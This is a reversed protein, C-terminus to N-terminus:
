IVSQEALGFYPLVLSAYAVVTPSATLPSQSAAQFMGVTRGITANGMTARWYAATTADSSSFALYYLGPDFTWSITVTQMASVGAQATAATAQVQTGTAGSITYVGLQANGAVAAGNLWWARVYTRRQTLRFPVFLGLGATGYVASAGAAGAHYSQSQIFETCEASSVVPLEPTGDPPLTLAM